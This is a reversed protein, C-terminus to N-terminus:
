RRKKKHSAPVKVWKTEEKARKEVWEAMYRSFKLRDSGPDDSPPHTLKWTGWKSYCRPCLGARLRDSGVGSVTSRCSEVWCEGQLSSQRGRMEAETGLVLERQRDIDHTARFVMGLGEVLKSVADAIPDAWRRGSGGCARCVVERGDDLTAKGQVCRDCVDMERRIVASLTPDSVEGGKTTDQTMGAKYGDAHSAQNARYILDTLVSGRSLIEAPKLLLELSRVAGKLKDQLAVSRPSLYNSGV